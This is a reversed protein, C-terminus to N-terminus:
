LNWKSECNRQDNIFFSSELQKCDSNPLIGNQIIFSVNHEVCNVYEDVDIKQDNLLDLVEEPSLKGELLDNIARQRIVLANFENQIDSENYDPNEIFYTQFPLM